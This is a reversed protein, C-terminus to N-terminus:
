KRTKGALFDLLKMSGAPAADDGKRQVNATNGVTKAVERLHVGANEFAETVTQLDVLLIATLRALALIVSNARDGVTDQLRGAVAVLGVSVTEKQDNPLKQLVKEWFAVRESSLIAKEDVIQIDDGIKQVHPHLPEGM